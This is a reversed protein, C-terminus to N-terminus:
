AAELMAIREEHNDLRAQHADISNQAAGRWTELGETRVMNEALAKVAKMYLISYQVAYYGDAGKQVLGPSISLVDQAILGIHRPANDNAEVDSIFRYKSVIAGLAKVDDWQSACLAIDQKLRRDSIAGYSNDHNQLDGDSYIICRTAGTDVCSLFIQTNDDPAAASFTISVGHPTTAGANAFAGVYVGNGAKLDLATAGAGGRLRTTAGAKNTGIAFIDGDYDWELLAGDNDSLTGLMVSANNADPVIISIGGNGAAEFVAEDASANATVAGATGSMVHLVGDHQATVGSAHVTLGTSNLEARQSNAEVNFQIVSGAKNTAIDLVGGSYNWSISAGYSNTTTPSSFVYYGTNADPTAVIVGGTAAAELVINWDSNAVWTGAAGPNVHLLGETRAAGIGVVAFQVTSAASVAQDGFLVTSSGTEDTLAAALNASSPTGLFTFVNAALMNALIVNSGEISVVGASVRVLTTDSAHGIEIGTFQPTNGTGVGISTRLDAGSEAVWTTGNAVMLNSDTVALAVIDTLKASMQDLVQAASRHEYGTEGANVRLFKLTAGALAPLNISAASAAAATASSAAATASTSADSASSAAATASSAAATASAAAATAVGGLAGTMVFYGATSNYVADVIMGATIDGLTLADGNYRKIAKVGLSNVNLTSAATNANVARFRVHLGHTYTVGSTYPTAVLYADAAGTDNGCWSVKGEYFNLKSPLLTLGTEIGQLQTLVAAARALTHASSFTATYYDNAM